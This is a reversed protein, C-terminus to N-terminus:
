HGTEECPGTRGTICGNIVEKTKKILNPLEAEGKDAIHQGIRFGIALCIGYGVIMAVASLLKM